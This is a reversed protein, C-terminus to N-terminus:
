FYDRELSYAGFEVYPIRVTEYVTDGFADALGVGHGMAQMAAYHGFFELTEPRDGDGVNEIWTMLETISKGNATEIGIALTRGAQIASKDTEEPMRDLIEGGCSNGSEEEQDAWASAFFARSAHVVFADFVAQNKM